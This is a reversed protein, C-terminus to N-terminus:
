FGLFKELVDIATPEFPVETVKERLAEEVEVFLAQPVKIRIGTHFHNTLHLFIDPWAPDFFGDSDSSWHKIDRYPYFKEGGVTLGKEDLMFTVMPPESSGWVLVLLEAIVIFAAFVYNRQWVAFILLLIAVIISVWYWTATKPRHEFEPAQWTIM